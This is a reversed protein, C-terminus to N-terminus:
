LDSLPPDSGGSQSETLERVTVERVPGTQEGAVYRVGVISDLTVGEPSILFTITAVGNDDAVARGRIVGDILLQVTSGPEAAVRVTADVM